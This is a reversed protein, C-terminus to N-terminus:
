FLLTHLLIHIVLTQMLHALRDVLGFSQVLLLHLVHELLPQLKDYTLRKLLVLITLKSFPLFWEPKQRKHAQRRMLSVPALGSCATPSPLTYSVLLAHGHTDHPPSSPLVRFLRCLWSPQCLRIVEYFIPIDLIVLNRNTLPSPELSLKIIHGLSTEDNGCHM